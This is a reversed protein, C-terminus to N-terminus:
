EGIQYNKEIEEILMDKHPCSICKKEFYQMIFNKDGFDRVKGSCILYAENAQDLVKPSHTILIVTSGNDKLIKLSNFIMELAEIDIGSDPEDFIAIKPKMALISAMEIRKREGGSLTKDVCRNMYESPDLGVIELLNEIDQYTAEKNSSSAKLFDIVKLGEYRAPEQWGLTIGLRAREYVDLKTIDKGQFLIQGSIKKYSSLGMIISAITSKGAGNPGIIAYIQNKKFKLSLGNIIKKTETKFFINQLELIYEKKNKIIDESENM